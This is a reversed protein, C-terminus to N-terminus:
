ELGELDYIVKTQGKVPFKVFDSIVPFDFYMYSIVEYYPGNSTDYRYVCYEYDSNSSLLEGDAEPCLFNEDSIRYGISKLSDNIEKVLNSEYNWDNKELTKFEAYKEVVNLIRNKVKFAKSYGISSVLIAIMIGVFILIINFIMSNGISERM